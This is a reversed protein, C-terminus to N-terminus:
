GKERRTSWDERIEGDGQKKKIVLKLFKVVETKMKLYVLGKKLRGGYSGL